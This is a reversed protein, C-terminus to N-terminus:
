PAFAAVGLVPSMQLARPVGPVQTEFGLDTRPLTWQLDYGPQRTM